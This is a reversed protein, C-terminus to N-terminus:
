TPSALTAKGGKYCTSEVQASSIYHWFTESEEYQELLGKRPITNSEVYFLPCYPYSNRDRAIYGLRWHRNRCLRFSIVHTYMKWQGAQISVEPIRGCDQFLLRVRDNLDEEDSGKGGVCGLPSKWRLRKLCKLRAVALSGADRLDLGTWLKLEELELLYETVKNIVLM